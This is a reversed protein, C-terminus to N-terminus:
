PTVLEGATPKQESDKADKRGLLYDTSVQLADALRALTHITIDQVEGRELKSVYSQDKGIAEGLTGQSLRLKLRALRLRDRDLM